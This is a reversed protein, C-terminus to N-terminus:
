EAISLHSRYAPHVEFKAPRKATKALKRALVQARQLEGETGGYDYNGESVELGLFGLRRLASLHAEPDDAGAAILIDSIQERELVAPEGAFEILVPELDLRSAVGEVLLAEYAFQSYNREAELLDSEEIRAHKANSARVVAANALFVLDRPRPQVRSLLYDRSSLGRIEPVFYNRWLDDPSTGSPRSALFRDELVRALLDRDRWEIEAVRIKDPERARDRVFAFIDSRLFVTLTVHLAAQKNGARAFDDVVRGVGTLLGLLLRALLDLDAGREWAKDLNDVLLAVRQRDGLASVILQKLEKLTGGYLARTIVQRSEEISSLETSKFADALGAVVKELRVSFGADVGGYQDELVTRMDDLSSGAAIGAPRAEAERVASSAIETYLLYRWLAEILYDHLHRQDVRRLVDLLGELEYSAPKIVCVLNRPDSRLAQAAQLMNATKGTGKRGTFIVASADLVDTYDRTEVFYKGLGDRDSEAVHNGFRLSSLEVSLHRRVPKQTPPSPEHLSAMWTDVSASLQKATGYRIALDRYDLAVEDTKEMVLLIKRGLGRAIGALLSVRPNMVESLYARSPTLHFVAFRAQYIQDVYFQLPATGYDDLDLREVQFKDYQELVRSLGLSAEDEKFSPVYLLRSEDLSGHEPLLDDILPAAPVNVLEALRASLEDANRYGTYGTTALLALSQWARAADKDQSDLLVVVRKQRGIAVGLEFLVNNNLVSLDFLGISAADIAAEVENFILRGDVHLDEWSVSSSVLPLEGAVAAARALTERLTEPRSAYGFFLREVSIEPTKFPDVYCHLRQAPRLDRPVRDCQARHGAFYPSAGKRLGQSPSVLRPLRCLTM